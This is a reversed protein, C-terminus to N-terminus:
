GSIPRPTRPPSKVALFPVREFDASGRRSDNKARIERPRIKEPSVVKVLPLGTSNPGLNSYFTVHFAGNETGCVPATNFVAGWKCCLSITWYPLIAEDAHNFTKGRSRFTVHADRTLDLEFTFRFSFIQHSLFAKYAALTLANMTTEGNSPPSLDMGFLVSRRPAIADPRHDGLSCWVGQFLQGHPKSSAWPTQLANGSTGGTTPRRANAFASSLRIDEINAGNMTELCPRKVDIIARAKKAERKVLMSVANGGGEGSCLSM